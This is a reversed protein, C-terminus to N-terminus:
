WSAWGMLGWGAGMNFANSSIPSFASFTMLKPSLAMSIIAELFAPMFATCLITLLLGHIFNMVVGQTTAKNAM